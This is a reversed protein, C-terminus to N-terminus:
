PSHIPAMGPRLDAAIMTYAARFAFRSGQDLDVLLEQLQPFLRMLTSGELSDRSGEVTQADSLSTIWQVLLIDELLTNVPPLAAISITISALKKLM